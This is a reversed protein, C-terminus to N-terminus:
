VLSLPELVGAVHERPLLLAILHLGGNVMHMNCVCRARAPM